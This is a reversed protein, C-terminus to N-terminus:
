LWRALAVGVLLGLIAGIGLAVESKVVLAEIKDLSAHIDSRIKDPLTSVTGEIAARIKNAEATIMTVLSM